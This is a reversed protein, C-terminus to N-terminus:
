SSREERKKEDILNEDGRHPGRKEKKRTSSTKMVEILVEIKKKIENILDEDGRHPGRKEKKRTSSTKMM